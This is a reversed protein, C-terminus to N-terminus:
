EPRAVGGVGYQPGNLGGSLASLDALSESMEKSKIHWYWSFPLIALVEAVFLYSTKRNSILTLVFAVAPSSFMSMGTILYWKHYRKRNRDDSVYPLTDSSCFLCVYGMCLFLLTACVSHVTWSQEGQKGVPFVAVGIAFFGALNLAYNEKNSFGKYLYLCTGISFLCGTFWVRAPYPDPSCIESSVMWYYQSMSHGIPIGHKWGVMLLIIPFSISILVLCYRLTLYTGYVHKLLENQSKM